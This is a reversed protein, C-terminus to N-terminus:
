AGELESEFCGVVLGDGFDVLYVAQEAAEHWGTQVVEGVTGAAALLADPPRDPYTGDNVLDELPRVKRGWQFAQTPPANM